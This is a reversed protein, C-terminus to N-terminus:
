STVFSVLCSLVFFHSFSGTDKNMDSYRRANESHNSPIYPMRESDVKRRSLSESNIHLPRFVKVHPPAPPIMAMVHNGVGPQSFAHAGQPFETYFDKDTLSVGTAVGSASAMHNSTLAKAM